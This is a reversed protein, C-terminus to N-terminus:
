STFSCMFEVRHEESIPMVPVSRNLLYEPSCALFVTAATAILEVLYKRLTKFEYKNIQHTKYQQKLEPEYRGPLDEVRLHITPDRPTAGKYSVM